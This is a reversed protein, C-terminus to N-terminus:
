NKNEVLLYCLSRFIQSQAWRHMPVNDWGFFLKRSRFSGDPKQWRELLDELVANLINDTNLFSNKSLVCLNICEAYDYLEHSYVTLRPAKYFPKPRGHEDLLNDIYFKIGKEIAERCNKRGTLHEIKVLAKLVFCTHFHDIFNRKGDVAYPWSGDPYQSELVFNLNREAIKLYKEEQFKIFASTLLFARYANSNVVGFGGHPTYSCSSSNSSVELDTIDRCAHEAISRMIELWKDNRDQRYVECFAEYAYPTTTILPTNAPVPGDRTIWEFPYGWCYHSYGPCRTARLVELYQFAKHLHEAKGTWKNLYAFGMAYHADAIPFRQRHCFFRRTSPLFTEFFVLPAVFLTGFLPRRYYTAKAKRGLPGAYFSQYDYSTEGYGDLWNVFRDISSFVRKRLEINM